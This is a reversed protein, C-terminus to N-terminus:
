KLHVHSVVTNTYIGRTFKSCDIIHGFASTYMFKVNKAHVGSCIYRGCQVYIDWQVEM